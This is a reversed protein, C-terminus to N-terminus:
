GKAHSYDGSATTNDGEAHSCEGSATTQWGEAHSARGSVTTNYGEAHSFDGSATTSYGEAHSCEGSSITRGGEAHSSEGYAIGKVIEINVNDLAENSLTKDLTITLASTDVDIIKAYTNNYCVIEGIECHGDWASAMYIKSNADGSYTPYYTTSIGL